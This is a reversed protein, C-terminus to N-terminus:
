NLFQSLIGFLLYLIQLSHKTESLKKLSFQLNKETSTHVTNNIQLGM